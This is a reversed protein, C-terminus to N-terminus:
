RSKEYRLESMHNPMAQPSFVSPNCFGHLHLCIKTNSQIFHNVYGHTCRNFETNFLCTYDSMSHSCATNAISGSVWINMYMTAYSVLLIDLHVSHLFSETSALFCEAYTTERVVSPVHDIPVTEQYVQCMCFMQHLPDKGLTKLVSPVCKVSFLNLIHVSHKRRCCERL